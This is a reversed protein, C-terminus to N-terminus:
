FPIDEHSFRAKEGGAAAGAKAPSRGARLNSRMPAAPRDTGGSRDTGNPRDNGHRAEATVVAAAATAHRPEAPRTAAAAGGTAFPDEERFRREAFRDEFTQQEGFMSRRGFPGADEDEAARGLFQFNEVVVSLKSRKGGAKDEWADYKLRGEVLIPRGKQMYQGITEAQRGFATCDVFCVEERDDGTQTRFRRSIALGFEAVTTSSPLQKLQPDRTLNGMLTVRNFSPM